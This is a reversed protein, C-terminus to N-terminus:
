PLKRSRRSSGGKASEYSQNLWWLADRLDADSSLELSFWGKGPVRTNTNLRPEAQARKFLAPPMPNFKLIISSSTFLGRSYPLAAFITRRHYISRFGFMRKCIVDPWTKVEAELQASWHQMEESIAPFKPREPRKSSKRHPNRKPKM